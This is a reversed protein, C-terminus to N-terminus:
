EHLDGKKFFPCQEYRGKCTTDWMLDPLLGGYSSCQVSGTCGELWYGQYHPCQSRYWPRGDKLFKAYKDSTDVLKTIWTSPHGTEELHRKAEAFGPLALFDVSPTDPLEGDFMFFM